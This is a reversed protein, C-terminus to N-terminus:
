ILKNKVIKKGKTNVVLITKLRARKSTNDFSYLIPEYRQRKSQNKEVEESVKWLTIPAEIHLSIDRSTIFHVEKHKWRM